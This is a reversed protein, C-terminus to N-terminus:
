ASKGAIAKEYIQDYYIINIVHLKKFYNRRVYIWKINNM